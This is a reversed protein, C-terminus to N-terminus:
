NLKLNLTFQLYNFKFFSFGIKASSFVTESFFYKLRGSEWQLPGYTFSISNTGIRLGERKISANESKNSNIRPKVIESISSGTQIVKKLQTRSQGFLFYPLLLFILVTLIIFFRTLIRIYYTIIRM